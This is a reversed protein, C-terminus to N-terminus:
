AGLGAPAKGRGGPQHDAACRITLAVPTDGHGGAVQLLRRQRCPLGGCARSRDAERKKLMQGAVGSLTEKSIPYLPMESADLGKETIAQKVTIFESEDQMAPVAEKIEAIVVDHERLKDDHAHLRPAVAKTVVAVLNAETIPAAPQKDKQLAVIFAREQLDHGWAVLREYREHFIEVERRANTPKNKFEGQYFARDFGRLTEAVAHWRYVPVTEYSAELAGGSFDKKLMAQISLYREFWISMSEPLQLARMWSKTSAYIRGEAVLYNLHTGAPSNDKMRTVNTLASMKQIGHSTKHCRDCVPILSHPHEDGFQKPYRVHHVQAAFDGCFQCFGSTRSLALNGLDRWEPSGLHKRYEDRRSM